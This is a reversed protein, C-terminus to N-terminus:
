AAQQQDLGLLLACRQKLSDNETHAHVAVLEGLHFLMDEVRSKRRATVLDNEIATVSAIEFLNTKDIKM